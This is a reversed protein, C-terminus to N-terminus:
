IRLGDRGTFFIDIRKKIRKSAQGDGVPNKMRSMKQYLARSSLLANCYSVIRRVSTGVIMACGAEVVEPRETKERLILVPKGLSPAEEQIGGSDTLIVYSRDMLKVFDFYGLPKVLSINRIGGLEERVSHQVNPNLHVPYIIEVQPNNRAVIKLAACINKLPRGFNERRHATVLIIKKNEPILKRKSAGPRKSKRIFLLADIVTNGTVEVSGGPIGEKLLNKYSQKTPAFHLHAIRSIMSRNIEEPYPRSKDFTRLGAEIHAVPVRSYFAALAACFATTTDGQVVVMQPKLEEYVRALRALSVAALYNLSQGPKMLDLDFDLPIKFDRVIDLALSQHQGTFCVKTQYRCDRKFAYIVPATKIIEPRTGIVFLIKRM